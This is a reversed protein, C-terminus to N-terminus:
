YATNIPMFGGMIRGDAGKAIVVKEPGAQYLCCEKDMTFFVDLNNRVCHSAVEGSIKRLVVRAINCEAPYVQSTNATWKDMDKTYDKSQGEETVFLFPPKGIFFVYGNVYIDKVEGDVTATGKPLFSDFSSIDPILQYYKEGDDAPTETKAVDFAYDLKEHNDVSMDLDVEFDVDVHIRLNSKCNPCSKTITESDRM